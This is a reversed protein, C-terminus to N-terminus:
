TLEGRSPTPAAACLTLLASRGFGGGFMALRATDERELLAHAQALARRAPELQGLRRLLLGMHVHPMAFSPDLYAAVQDHHLAQEHEGAAERCVALVYHAGACLEDQQLLRRCVAEAAVFHSGHTLLAAELLLHDPDGSDAEAVTKLLSLAESYRDSHMLDLVPALDRATALSAGVPTEPSTQDLARVRTTAREIVAAWDQAPEIVASVNADVLPSERVSWARAPEPSECEHASKRQYYFSEHTHCLHYAQSLNRLNEAHGLFLHGGPKLARTLHALASRAQEQSFYMLVNRCFIVDWQAEGLLDLDPRVLNCEEFRVASRISPDLTFQNGQARFWCARQDDRIARLSWETYRAERAREIVHPNLDVGMVRLSNPRGALVERAVITLSYAEEGSACGASLVSFPALSRSQTLHRQVLTRFADLQAPNRFFYTEAVTLLPALKRMEGSLEGRELRMLYQAVECDHAAARKELLGPLEDSRGAVFSLGTHAELISRFRETPQADAAESM